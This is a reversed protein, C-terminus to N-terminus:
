RRSGCGPGWCTAATTPRSWSSAPSSRRLLARFRELDGSGERVEGVVRERLAALENAIAVQADFEAIMAEVAEQQRRHQEAEAQAAAIEGRVRDELRSWREATLAGAVYDGEIRELAPEAKAPEGEAQRHLDGEGGLAQEVQKVLLERTADLDLVDTEVLRWVARDVAARRVPKQACASPGHHLRQGSEDPTVADTQSSLDARLRTGPL